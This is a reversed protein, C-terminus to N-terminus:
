TFTISISQIHHSDSLWAVDGVCSRMLCWLPLPFSSLVLVGSTSSYFPPPPPPPVVWFSACFLHSHLVKSSSYMGALMIPILSHTLSSYDRNQKTLDHSVFSYLPFFHRHSSRPTIPVIFFPSSGFGALKVKWLGAHNEMYMKLIMVHIWYSEKDQHRRM